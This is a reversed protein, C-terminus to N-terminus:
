NFSACKLLTADWERGASLCPSQLWCTAKLARVALENALIGWGSLSLFRFVLWAGCLCLAQGLHSEQCSSKRTQGLSLCIYRSHSYWGRLNFPSTIGCLDVSSYYPKVFFLYKLKRSHLTITWTLHIEIGRMVPRLVSSSFPCICKRVGPSCSTKSRSWTSSVKKWLSSYQLKSPWIKVTILFDM